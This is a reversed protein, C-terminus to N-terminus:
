SSRCVILDGEVVIVFICVLVAFDSRLDPLGQSENRLCRCAAEEEFLLLM